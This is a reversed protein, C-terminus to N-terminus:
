PDSQIKTNQKVCNLSRLHTSNYGLLTSDELCHEIVFGSFPFFFLIVVLRTLSKVKNICRSIENQRCIGKLKRAKINKRWWCCSITCVSYIRVCTYSLHRVRRGSSSSSSCSCCASHPWMTWPRWWCWLSDRYPLCLVSWSWSEWWGFPGWSQCAGVRSVWSRGYATHLYSVFLAQNVTKQIRYHKLSYNCCMLMCWCENWTMSRMTLYILWCLQIQCM